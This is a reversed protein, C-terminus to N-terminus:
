CAPSAAHKAPRKSRCSREILRFLVQGTLFGLDAFLHILQLPHDVVRRAHRLLNPFALALFKKQARAL